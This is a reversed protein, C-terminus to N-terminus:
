REEQGPRKRKPRTQPRARGPTVIEAKILNTTGTEGAPLGATVVVRDGSRIFRAARATALARAILRDTNKLHGSLIPIVGWVLALRRRTNPLPTLSLIPPRPRCQSILRATRGSRTLTLIAAADLDAALRCAACGVAEPVSKSRQPEGEFRQRWGEFPFIAEADDAIRAMMAAAEVPFAGVATEESLMLADTGDLVANAVDTVEARTPRPSDTMSRLMQTATIVPKAALNARRILRKQVSPVQELPTEVGLDGRAVMIGDAAAIISDIQDLAEHKEIKAIVPISAGLRRILRKARVVDAARRVFSLAVYDVGRRVGFALDSRDKETLCGARITRSPLNVGKRSSLPGGTVVRCRIDKGSVKLVELEIAGDNLLIADGRRVDRVLGPFNISVAGADGAVKRSTLIFSAGPRLEVTGEAITGIRIKPGALDQLIAVPRGTRDAARRVSSIIRAHEARTGHSFNLRAVSMGARILRELVAPRSSAPGITCVIKTRPM